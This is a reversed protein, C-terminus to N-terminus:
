GFHCNFLQADDVGGISAIHQVDGGGEAIIIRGPDRTGQDVLVTLDLKHM